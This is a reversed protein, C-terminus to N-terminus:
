PTTQELERRNARQGVRPRSSARRGNAVIPQLPFRL